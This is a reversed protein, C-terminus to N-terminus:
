ESTKPEQDKKSLHEDALRKDKNPYQISSLIWGQAKGFHELFEEETQIERLTYKMAKRM